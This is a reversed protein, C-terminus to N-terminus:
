VAQSNKEAIVVYLSADRDRQQQSHIKDFLRIFSQMIFAFPPVLFKPLKLLIADQFLQIGSAALGMIGHFSNVKFGEAEITKKLGASTWRWYDYPTPHYYWYGHTTLIIKGGPKLIRLAESLYSHPSDVHELVQNSLIIDCYNDPLTTKSDFDIHHEALPNLDLDVGIYKGVMPEIVSRYPMDGCGFDILTLQKNNVTLENMVKLTADRLKTLHVYRTSFLTPKLRSNNDM